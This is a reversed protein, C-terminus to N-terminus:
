GDATIREIVLPRPPAAVDGVRVGEALHSLADDLGHGARHLVTVLPEGRSVRQGPRAHVRLGVGHDVPEGAARRGAGLVFAARGVEFADVAEVVGDRAAEVVRVGCGGGRLAGRELAGADGGQAEVMAVFRAYAAGSDLVRAADPHDALALTLARLDDPGGGQLAAVAEEVEVANGVAEGLPASMDTLLAVCRKGAGTAVEVLSRALARADDLTKMFAGAGVKVDLVLADIGEALKKSLISGTILPISPVAQIEDRLAYLVRDAPAVEGTQGSIFCGVGALVDGLEVVSLDTRFGPIAELKDLTGGTHGLGRGSIMPVRYGLEAWLPALVLSVKDGVGGTSHKDICTAGAPWTLVDGSATMARTLALTERRTLGRAYAWALWAAAQPRTITGNTVGAIFAQVAEDSQPTGDRMAALLDEVLHM